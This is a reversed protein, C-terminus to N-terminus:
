RVASQRGARCELARISFATRPTLRADKLAITTGNEISRQIPPDTAVPRPPHKLERMSYSHYAGFGAAILLLPIWM